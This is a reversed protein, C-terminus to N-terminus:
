TGGKDAAEQARWGGQSAGGDELEQGQAGM